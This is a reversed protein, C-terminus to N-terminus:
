GEIEAAYGLEEIKKRLQEVMIVQPDYKVETKGSSFKTSSSYVGKLDELQADINMGCSVCHMDSIKFILKSGEVQKPKKGFLKM